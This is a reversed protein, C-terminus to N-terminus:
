MGSHFLYITTGLTNSGILVKITNRLDDTVDTPMSCESAAFARFMQGVFKWSVAFQHPYILSYTVIMGYAKDYCAAALVVMATAATYFIAEELPVRDAVFVDLSTATNLHWVNEALATRDVWLAYLAAGRDRLVVTGTANRFLKRCRVVHGRRGSVGLVRRKGLLVNAPGTRGDHLWRGHGRDAVIDAVVPDNSLQTQRPQLEFVANEVPSVAGVM